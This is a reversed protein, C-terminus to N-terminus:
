LFTRWIFGGKELLTALIHFISGNDIFIIANKLYLAKMLYVLYM